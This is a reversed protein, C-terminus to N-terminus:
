QGKGPGRSARPRRRIAEAPRDARPQPVPTNALHQAYIHRHRDAQQTRVQTLKTRARESDGTHSLSILRMLSKLELTTMWPNISRIYDETDQSAERIELARQRTEELSKSRYWYALWNPDSVYPGAIEEIIHQREKLADEKAKLNAQIRKQRELLAEDSPINRPRDRRSMGGRSLLSPKKSSSSSAKDEKGHGESEDMPKKEESM